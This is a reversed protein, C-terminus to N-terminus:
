PIYGIREKYSKIDKFLPTSSNPPIIPKDIKITLPMPFDVGTLLAEGAGLVPLFALADSNASSCAQRIADKDNTNILRHVIFTGIQSLTGLPIDKPMQTAICLFLGYKRCEKAIQDFASLSNSAFYQDVVSKNLFQHAEDVLLVVPFNKFHGSRAKTLLHKGIANATIERAQSEFGVQEFGIRLLLKEKQNPSLFDDITEKLNVSNCGDNNLGFLSNFIGTKRIGGIRTILSICNSLDNDSRGGYLNPNSRDSDYVCEENIQRELNNINFTLYGDEVTDVHKYCFREYVKKDLGTKTLVGFENILHKFDKFQPDKGIGLEVCKLSRIAEILKPAQIREAPKVLFFLDEITLDRYSYHTNSGLVVSIGNAEKSILEYEGTPDILISKTNNKIMGELLKSVTWSKGGGTTGVVACHRGFLSQQSLKVKTQHNSTLCGISLLMKEAENKIGFRMVYQQIFESACVYVKSGINPFANLTRTASTSNYYDFSLLIEVKATPHFDSSQFARENLSLREKEPLDLESIKGIFGMNEGEITVYSGILGGNFEEGAFMYKNLLTSSPFHVKSYQPSVHNIYGIFYSNNFPTM